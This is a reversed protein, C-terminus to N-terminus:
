VEVFFSVIKDDLGRRQKKSTGAPCPSQRHVQHPASGLVMNPLSTKKFKLQLLREFAFTNTLRLPLTIGLADRARHVGVRRAEAIGKDLKGVHLAARLRLLGQISSAEPEEAAHTSAEM